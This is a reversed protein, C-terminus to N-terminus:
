GANSNYIKAFDDLPLIAVWPKNNRRHVVVPIDSSGESDQIAQDLATYLSLSETRKVELHLGPVGIVDASTASGCYQQSRRAEPFGLRRLEQALEREGRKGKNRSFQGM